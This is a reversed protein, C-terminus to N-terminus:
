YMTELDSFFSAYMSYSTFSQIFKSTKTTRKYLSEVLPKGAVIHSILSDRHPAPVGVAMIDVTLPHIDRINTWTVVDKLYTM